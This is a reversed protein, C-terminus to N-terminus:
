HSHNPGWNSHGTGTSSPDFLPIKDISAMSSCLHHHPQMESQGGCHRESAVSKRANSPAPRTARRTRKASRNAGRSLDLSLKTRCTGCRKTSEVNGIMWSIFGEHAPLPRPVCPPAAVRRGRQSALDRSTCTVEQPRKSTRLPLQRKTRIEVCHGHPLFHTLPQPRPAHARSSRTKDQGLIQIMVLSGLRFCTWPARRDSFGMSQDSNM